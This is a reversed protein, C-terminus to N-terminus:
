IIKWNGTLFTICLFTIFFLSNLIVVKKSLNNRLYDRLINWCSYYVLLVIAGVTLHNAPWFSIVWVLEVVILSFLFSYFVFTKNKSSDLYLEHAKSKLFNIKTLYITSFFTTIFILILIIWLSLILDIYINYIGSSILFISILIIVQNLNFGSDLVKFKVKEKELWKEQQIFFRYLGILVLAFILSSAVIYLQQFSNEELTMLFLVSGTTWLMILIIPLFKYKTVWFASLVSILFLTILSAYSLGFSKFFFEMMVFFIFSLTILKIYKKIKM